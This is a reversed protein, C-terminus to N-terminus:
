REIRAAKRCLLFIAAALPLNTLEEKFPGYKEGCLRFMPARRVYISVEGGKFAISSSLPDYDELEEVPVPQAIWGTKGNLTNPLRILRHIDTTVVTDVAAAQERVAKEMIWNLSERSLYKLIGSPPGETLVRLIEERSDILSRVRERRGTRVEELIRPPPNALYDYLAKSARGMWGLGHLPSSGKASPRFGLLEVRMGTGTVYDVIERRARQDLGRIWPATIHVHYGRNGTFNVKLYELPIGFDQILIDLLKQAEGKAKDLCTDCVWTEEELDTGSCRPCREPARGKGEFGCLNCRWADHNMRCPTEMHDADIDFVLDAGIWGKSEMDARPERYYASSYYIHAPAKELIFSRLQSPDSFSTHRIMMGGDFPLFGFERREMELPPEVKGVSVKYYRRFQEEVFSASGWEAM